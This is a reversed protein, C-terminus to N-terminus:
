MNGYLFNLLTESSVAIGISGCQEDVMSDTFVADAMGMVKGTRTSIIPSGSHGHCIKGFLELYEGDINGTFGTQRVDRHYMVFGAVKYPQYVTTELRYFNPTTAFIHVLAIDLSENRKTIVGIYEKQNYIVTVVDAGSVVHEATLIDGKSDILFGTGSSEGVDNGIYVTPSAAYCSLSVCLLLLLLYKIVSEGLM